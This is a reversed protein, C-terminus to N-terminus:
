QPVSTRVVASASAPRPWAVMAMWAQVSPFLQSSCLSSLSRFKQPGASNEGSPVRRMAGSM